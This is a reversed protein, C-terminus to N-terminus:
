RLFRAVSIGFAVALLAVAVYLGIVVYGVILGAKALGAGGLLPEQAFRRRALHGCIVGPIVLPLVFLGTISCILSTVAL